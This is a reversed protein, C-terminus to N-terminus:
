PFSVGSLIVTRGTDAEWLKLTYTGQAETPLAEAEVVLRQQRTAPASHVSPWPPLVKLEIGRRDTLAAGSATLPQTGAPTELTM